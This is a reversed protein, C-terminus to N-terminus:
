VLIKEDNSKKEKYVVLKGDDSKRLQRKKMIGWLPVAIFISSFVGCILGILLALSFNFISSAGFILLAVVVIVVTLVTNISRTMTQKISRNVIDDIQQPETIVKVKHLNERVRDFTVITDNLSYGIITLVAAIFTIDVEIRFLSFVAVIMFADHLLALISSLGMRWEFRLSIYIIIGIAAYILAMMANKALEQGIVPSVTNVTPDHGFTKDVTNKIKAVQDKNLDNKFQVSINKGNEGISVQDPKFNDKELTQTVKDQSVKNDAEFDVRTGSTFDIGLNLRFVFLIIAGIIIIIVSLSLLPKALKVFNWKEYPTKLDHVDKGDNIDFRESKKVGFWSLKNKFYNSSVLLSLLGRSLFVATVFIMLIVLLLMTAFGKVSSEGFFFLVAAAIVTTLNADVITLFSSKNAKKYAQKLTRGVKLEDKIREYMIINADVAMGVGLVLAALGPLTLVGSIFNFAVMVLYIYTTLAIIAVLGPLRYFGLMFLYIIAVGIISALITKDLADQGFQAGVSNSYIENLDVPLSGANLLDAIQKAEQVGKEGNFGGSIEVSDSNIPKDVSAASVYKPDKKSKEKQYSDGKEYDLWVVMVNEKKKSIEETVKKFKDSDKLKFTVAPQNTNQKFEQKASGQQIDKGTLKINDDADRITLNAQSSLIERAQSQNEVGALQVRIRNQDEVQIKPESVGLVNVRNELTKATAQVADNDIKDGEQLPDVQYLVEFGGQLDLGLNVDKVVNKYTLGMGAFLIVVLLLFAVIKSSKKM